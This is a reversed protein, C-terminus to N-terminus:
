FILRRKADCASSLNKRTTIIRLRVTRSSRFEVSRCAIRYPKGWAESEFNQDL